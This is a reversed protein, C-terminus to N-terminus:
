PVVERHPNVRHCWHILRPVLNFFMTDVPGKRRYEEGRGLRAMKTGGGVFLVYSVCHCFVLDVFRHGGVPHLAGAPYLDTRSYGLEQYSQRDLSGPRFISHLRSTLSSNHFPPFGRRLPQSALLIRSHSNLISKSKTRDCPWSGREVRPVSQLWSVDVVGHYLLLFHRRM